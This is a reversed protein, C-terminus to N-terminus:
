IRVDGRVSGVFKLIQIGRFTHTKRQFKYVCFIGFIKKRHMPKRIQWSTHLLAVRLSMIKEFKVSGFM